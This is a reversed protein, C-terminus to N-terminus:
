PAGGTLLHRVRGRAYTYDGREREDIATILDQVAARLELLERWATEDAGIEVTRVPPAALSAHVLALTAAAQIEAWPIDAALNDRMADCAFLLAEAEARHDIEPTSM